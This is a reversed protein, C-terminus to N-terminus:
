IASTPERQSLLNRLVSTIREAPNWRRCHLRQNGEKMQHWGQTGLAMLINILAYFTNMSDVSEITFKALHGVGIAPSHHSWIEEYRSRTLTEKRPPGIVLVGHYYAGLHSRALVYRRNFTIQHFIPNFLYINTWYSKLQTDVMQRPPLVPQHTFSLMSQRSQPSRSVSSTSPDSPEDASSDGVGAEATQQHESATGIVEHLFAAASSQGLYTSSLPTTYSDKEVTGEVGMTSHERRSALDAGDARRQRPAAIASAGESEATSSPGAERARDPWSRSLIRPSSLGASLTRNTPSISALKLGDAPQIRIYQRGAAEDTTDQCLPQCIMRSGDRPQALPRSLPQGLAGELDRNRREILRVYDPTTSDLYICTSSKSFCAGCSPRGGDCRVKRQRCEQCALGIKHRKAAPPVESM